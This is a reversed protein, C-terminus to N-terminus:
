AVKMAGFVDIGVSAFERFPARRSPSALKRVVGALLPRVTGRGVFEYDGNLKPTFTLKGVILRRLMQQMQPVHGRLLKRYDAVYSKLPVRVEDADLRPSRSTAELAAIQHRLDARRAESERIADLLPDLDGGRKIATTLRGVETELQALEVALTERKRATGDRVIEAEAFALTQGELHAPASM